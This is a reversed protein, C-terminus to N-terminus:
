AKYKNLFELAYPGTATNNSSVVVLNGAGELNILDVTLNRNQAERAICSLCVETDNKVAQDAIYKSLSLIDTLPLVYSEPFEKLNLMVTKKDKSVSVLMEINFKVNVPDIEVTTKADEYDLNFDSRNISDLCIKINDNVYKVLEEEVKATDPM